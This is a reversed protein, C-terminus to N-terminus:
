GDVDMEEDEEGDVREEVVRKWVDMGAVAKRQEVLHPGRAIEVTQV